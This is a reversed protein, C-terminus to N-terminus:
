AELLDIMERATPARRSVRSRLESAAFPTAWLHAIRAHRGPLLRAALEIAGVADPSGDFGVLVPHRHSTMSRDDRCAGSREDPAVV